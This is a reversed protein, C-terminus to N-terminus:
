TLRAFDKKNGDDSHMKIRSNKGTRGMARQHKESHLIRFVNWYPVFGASSTSPEDNYRKTMEMSPWQRLKHHRVLLRRLIGCVNTWQKTLCKERFFWEIAHIVVWCSKEEREVQSVWVKSSRGIGSFTEEEEERELSFLGHYFPHNMSEGHSWCQAVGNTQRFNRRQTVCVTSPIKWRWCM